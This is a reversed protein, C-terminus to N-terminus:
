QHGLTYIKNRWVRPPPKTSTSQYPCFISIDTSQM